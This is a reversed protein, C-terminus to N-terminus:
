RKTELSRVWEEAASRRYYFRRGIKLRPPGKGATHWNRLTSPHFGLQDALEGITLYEDFLKPHQTNPTQNFSIMM